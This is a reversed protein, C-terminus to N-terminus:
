FPTACDHYLGYGAKMVEREERESSGCGGVGSHRGLIGWIGREQQPDEREKQDKAGNIDNIYKQDREPHYRKHLSLSSCTELRRPCEVFPRTVM